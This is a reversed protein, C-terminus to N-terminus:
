LSYEIINESVKLNLSKVDVNYWNYKQREIFDEAIKKRVM